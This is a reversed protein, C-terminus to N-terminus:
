EFESPAEPPPPPVFTALDVRESMVELAKQPQKWERIMTEIARDIPIQYIGKEANVVAYSSLAADGEACNDALNQKRLVAREAGVQPARAQDRTLWLVAAMALFAGVIIIFYPLVSGRQRNRNTLNM